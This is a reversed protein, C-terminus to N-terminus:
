INNELNYIHEKLSKIYKDKKAIVKCQEKYKTCVLNRMKRYLMCSEAECSMCNKM